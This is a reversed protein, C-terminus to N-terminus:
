VSCQGEKVRIKKNNISTSQAFPFSHYAVEKGILCWSTMRTTSVPHAKKRKGLLELTYGEPDSMLGSRMCHAFFKEVCIMSRSIPSINGNHRQVAERKEAFQRRPMYPDLASVSLMCWLSDPDKSEASASHRGCGYALHGKAIQFADLQGKKGKM